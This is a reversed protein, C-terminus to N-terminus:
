QSSQFVLIYDLSSACVRGRVDLEASIDSKRFTRLFFEAVEVSAGEPSEEFDRSPKSEIVKFFDASAIEIFDAPPRETWETRDMASLIVLKM